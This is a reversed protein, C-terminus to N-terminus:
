LRESESLPQSVPRMARRDALTFWFLGGPLAILLSAIGVLISLALAQPAPVGAYGFLAVMAVERAGWGAISIPLTAVLVVPLFLVLCDLLSIEIGLGKALVYAVLGLNIHGIVAVGLVPLAKAPDLYLKRTDAALRVLGRVARWKKLSEPVRDLLMTVGTGVIGLVTLAPFLWLSEPDPVKAALLPESITVLAVLALVTALRELMVSNVAASLPLGARNTTWIRVVDGGVAGPLVLGFFTGVAFVGIAKGLGLHAGLAKIVMQWRLGCVALQIAMLVLAAVFSLPSLTRAAQWAAAIDVKRLLLWFLLASVAIKAALSVWRPIM